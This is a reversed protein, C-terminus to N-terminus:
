RGGGCNGNSDGYQPCDGSDYVPPNVFTGSVAKNLRNELDESSVLALALASPNVVDLTAGVDVSGDRMTEGWSEAATNLGHLLRSIVTPKQSLATLMVQAGDVTDAYSDSTAHLLAAVRQSAKAGNGLLAKFDDANETLTRASVAANDLLDLFEPTINALSHAFPAFKDMDAVLQPWLPLMQTLYTDTKVLTNGLSEGRGALAQAMGSLGANLKGPHIGRLLEDLTSVTSQLSPHSKGTVAPIVTGAALSRQPAEGPSAATHDAHALAPQATSGADTVEDSRADDSRATDGSRPDVLTVYQNGFVSLPGIAAEVDNPVRQIESPDLGLEVVINGDSDTRPTAAVKGVKVGHYHVTSHQAVVAGDRPVRATVRVDSSFMGNFDSIVLAVIALMAAVFGTGVWLSLGRHDRMNHLDTM